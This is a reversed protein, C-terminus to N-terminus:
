RRTKRIDRWEQRHWMCVEASGERGKWNEEIARDGYSMDQMKGLSDMLRQMGWELEERPLAFTMRFFGPAESRYAEGAALWVGKEIMKWALERENQLSIPKLFRSLDLWIFPGSSSVTYSINGNQFASTCYDYAETMRSTVLKFYSDLFEQDDLISCWALDSLSSTWAFKSISRMAAHLRANNQSIFAGVRIGNSCFDKSMGYLVHVLSPDIFKEINLSLVSIFPRPEPCDKSPFISKAYVEDSIFHIKHRECFELYAEVARQTYCIGLPNHPNALMLARIPTGDSASKVLAREYHDLAEVSLPDTDGFDVTVPQVRARNVFDSIFGVYLPRGILIGEGQECLCFSLSDIVSSVGALITVHQMEIPKLPDFNRTMFGALSQRLRNSGVSGDGYTLMRKTVHMHKNIQDAIEQHMLRNEAVGMSIIGEPNGEADFPNSSGARMINKIENPELNSLARRSLDTTIHFDKPM